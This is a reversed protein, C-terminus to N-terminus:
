AIRSPTLYTHTYITSDVSEGNALREIEARTYVERSGDYVSLIPLDMVIEFTESDHWVGEEEDFYYTSDDEQDDDPDHEETKTNELNAKNIHRLIKSDIKQLKGTEPDVMSNVSMMGLSKMLLQSHALALAVPNEYTRTRSNVGKKELDKPNILKKFTDLTPKNNTLNM